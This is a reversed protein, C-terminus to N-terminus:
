RKQATRRARRNGIAIFTAVAGIVVIFIGYANIAKQWWPAQGEPWVRWLVSVLGGGFCVFMVVVGIWQALNLSESGAWANRWFRGENQVTDPFVINRQRADVDRLWDNNGHRNM